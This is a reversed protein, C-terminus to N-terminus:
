KDKERKKLELDIQSLQEKAEASRQDEPSDEILRKLNELYRTNCQEWIPINVMM